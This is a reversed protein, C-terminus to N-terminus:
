INEIENEHIKKMYKKGTKWVGENHAMACAIRDPIRLTRIIEGCILSISIENELRENEIEICRVVNIQDM